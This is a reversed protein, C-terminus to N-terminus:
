LKFHSADQKLTQSLQSLQMSTHNIQEAIVQSQETVQRINTVSEGVQLTTSSQQHTASAILTSAEDLRIMSHSITSLRNRATNAQQIVDQVQQYGQTMTNVSETVSAQLDRIVDEIRRTSDQTRQSLSRVEDAVVAFGRGAEGARASEIAANLALLNTQEAIDNIVQLATEISAANNSVRGISQSATDIAHNLTHISADLYTMQAQGQEVEQEAANAEASARAASTAVESASLTMQEMAAAVQDTEERQQQVQTANEDCIKQLTQTSTTLQATVQLLNSVLRSLDRRTTEIGMALLGIEDGRQQLHPALPQSLDGQGMQELRKVLQRIPTGLHNSMLLALGASSIIAILLLAVSIVAARDAAAMSDQYLQRGLRDQGMAMQWAAQDLAEYHQELTHLAQHLDHDVAFSSLTLFPQLSAHFALWGQQVPIFAALNGTRVCHDDCLDILVQIRQIGHGIDEQLRRQDTAQDARALQYALARLQAMERIMESLEIIHDFRDDYLTQLNSTIQKTSLHGSAGTFLVLLTMISFALLLKKKLNLGLQRPM